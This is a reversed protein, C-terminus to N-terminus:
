GESKASTLNWSGRSFRFNAVLQGGGGFFFFLTKTNKLTIKKEKCFVKHVLQQKKEKLEKFIV